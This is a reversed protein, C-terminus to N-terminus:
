EQDTGNEEVGTESDLVQVPPAAPTAQEPTALIVLGEAVNSLIIHLLQLDGNLASASDVHVAGPTTLLKAGFAAAKQIQEPSLNVKQEQKLDQM